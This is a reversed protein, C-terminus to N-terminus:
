SASHRAALRGLEKDSYARLDEPVADEFMLAALTAEEGAGKGLEAVVAAVRKDIASKSKM